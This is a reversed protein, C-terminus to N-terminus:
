DIRFKGFVIFQNGSPLTEETMPRDLAKINIGCAFGKKKEATGTLEEVKRLFSNRSKLDQKLWDMKNM